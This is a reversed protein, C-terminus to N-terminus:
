ELDAVYIFLMKITQLYYHGSWFLNIYTEIVEKFGLSIFINVSINFVFKKYLAKLKNTLLVIKGGYEIGRCCINLIITGQVLKV